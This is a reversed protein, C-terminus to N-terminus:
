VLRSSGKGAEVAVLNAEAFAPQMKLAERLAELELIGLDRIVEGVAMIPWFEKRMAHKGAQSFDLEMNRGPTEVTPLQAHKYVITKTDLRSIEPQVKKLGEPSLIVLVDPAEIGTFLIEEVSLIVEAVSHGTKVTVPYDQRMTAWLGSLVAARCFASATTGVRTGAAGAFIFSMKRPLAHGFQTEMPKPAMALEGSFEEARARLMSSYEPQTEDKLIGSALNLEAMTAELAKRSFRNNPVYYSTCLEWIDILSFGDNSIARVILESLQKDFSTTRAVFSAGNIAVTAAIDLPRELNGGRTTSTVGGFPTTVSHEGGTMGYNLNNFVLVTVGINRRAANILHHGGIGCGGDGVLVIPKMSPNALKIGSAYTVSRGHLGHFANTNFFRDSLGCCGIDSVLVVQRPDLQLKVLAQNLQDLIPGHGCGPCFPYPLMNENLYTALGQDSM